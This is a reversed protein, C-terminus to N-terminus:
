KPSRKVGVLNLGHPESRTIEIGADELPKRAEAETMPQDFAPSLMDFTDLIAWAYRQDRNLQPEHVYNAVPIAFMFAKGLIPLRFLVNTVPFAIPMIGRILNLLTEKKLRKTVTRLWYKAFLKTWPKRPYITFAVSGNPKVMQTVSRLSAARDPTHQIVGICYARDFAGQRFPLDYISAQVFHVNECDALNDKAADIASSIDIGVVEGQSTSAADLFRGAGCGADLIWQGGLGNRDWGTENWLRDASLSTGNYCDLQEKRFLNWQYGFSSAYNDEPVFRPIGNRIPYDVGCAECRLAGTIVDDADETCLELPGKCAACALIDLLKRKM